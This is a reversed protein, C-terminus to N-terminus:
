APVQIRQACQGDPAVTGLAELAPVLADIQRELEGAVYAQTSAILHVDCNMITDMVVLGNERLTQGTEVCDIAFDALGPVFAEASGTVTMVDLDKGTQSLYRAAINPYETSVKGHVQSEAFGELEDREAIALDQGILAISAHYWCLPMVRTVNASSEAIWEDPAIGLPVIGDGVMRAIDRIKFLRAELEAAQCHYRYRREQHPAGLEELLQYSFSALRGKPLAIPIM